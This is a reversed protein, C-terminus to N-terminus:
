PRNTSSTQAQVVNGRLRQLKEQTELHMAEDLEALGKPFYATEIDQISLKDNLGVDRAICNIIQRYREMTTENSFPVAATAQNFHKWAGRVEQSDAFVLDILNLASVSNYNSIQGRYQMLTTLIYLKMRRQEEISQTDNRLKEAFEAALKPARFTAWVALGAAGLTLIAAIAQVWDPSISV